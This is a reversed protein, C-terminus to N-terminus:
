RTTFAVSTGVTLQGLCSLVFASALTAHGCLAVEVKPTFWRLHYGTVNPVLYATESLNMELAVNQLWEDERWYDLPVVAAPNGSFPRNTFADVIFYRIRGVDLAEMPTISKKPPM